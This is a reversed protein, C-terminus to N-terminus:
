LGPLMIPKQICSITHARMRGANDKAENILEILPDDGAPKGASGLHLTMMRAAAEWKLRALNVGPPLEQSYQTYRAFPKNYALRIPLGTEAPVHALFRLHEDNDERWHFHEYFEYPVVKFRGIWVGVVNTVLIPSTPLDYTEQDAETHLETINEFYSTYEGLDQLAQNVAQLLAWLPYQPGMAAWNSGSAPAGVLDGIVVEGAAHGLIERLSGAQTGSLVWATGGVLSGPRFSLASDKLLTTSCGSDLIGYFMKGTAEATQFLAEGLTSM